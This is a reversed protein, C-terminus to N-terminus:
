IKNYMYKIKKWVIYFKNLLTRTLLISFNNLSYIGRLNVNIIEEGSETVTKM